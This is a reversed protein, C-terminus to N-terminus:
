ATVQQQGIVEINRWMDPTLGSGNARIDVRGVPIRKLLFYGEADTTTKLGTDPVDVCIGSYTGIRPIDITIYGNVRGFEVIPLNNSEVCVFPINKNGSVLNTKRNAGQNFDFSLVANGKKKALFIIQAITGSGTINGSMVGAAYSISSSGIKSVIKPIFATDKIELVDLLESDFSIFMDMNTLKAVKEVRVTVTFTEEVGIEKPVDMLLTTEVASTLTAYVIATQQSEVLIAKTFPRYNAKTVSLTHSGVVVDKITLSNTGVLIGDLYVSTNQVNATVSIAGPPPVITKFSWLYIDKLRNGPSSIDMAVTSITCIYTTNEKLGTENSIITLQKKNESWEFRKDVIDPSISFAQETASQNMPKSFSIILTTNTAINKENNSINTGTIMPPICDITVDRDSMDNATTDNADTVAAKIRLTTTDTGIVTWPYFPLTTGTVITDQFTEGSDMSYYLSVKYPAVGGQINWTINTLPATGDSSTGSLIEGGNPSTLTINLPGPMYNYDVTVSGVPLEPPMPI